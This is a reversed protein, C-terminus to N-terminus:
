QFCLIDEGSKAIVHTYINNRGNNNDLFIYQIVQIAIYKNQLHYMYVYLPIFCYCM